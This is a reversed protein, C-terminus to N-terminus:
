ELISWWRRNMIGKFPMRFGGGRFRVKKITKEFTGTPKSTKTFELKGKVSEKPVIIDGGTRGKVLIHGDKLSRGKGSAQRVGIKGEELRSIMKNRYTASKRSRAKEPNEKAWKRAQAKVREPNEKRWKITAKRSKETNAKQWNRSSERIKEPNEKAWKKAKNKFREPNKKYIERLKSANYMRRYEKAESGKLSGVEKKWIKTEDLTKGGIDKKILDIGRKM